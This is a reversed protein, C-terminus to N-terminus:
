SKVADGAGSGTVTKMIYLFYNKLSMKKIMIADTKALKEPTSMDINQIQALGTIGPRVNYVAKESRAIILEEQDFLKPRPCVLSMDVLLVNWLLPLEDLKTKVLFAGLKTSCATSSM